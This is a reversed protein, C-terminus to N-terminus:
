QGNWPLNPYITAKNTSAAKRIDRRIGQRDDGTDKVSDGPKSTYFTDRVWDKLMIKGEDKWIGGGPPEATYMWRERWQPSNRDSLPDWVWQFDTAVVDITVILDTVLDRQRYSGSYRATETIRRILDGDASPTRVSDDATLSVSLWGILLIWFVLKVLKERKKEKKPLIPHSTLSHKGDMSKPLSIRFFTEKRNRYLFGTIILIVPWETPDGESGM